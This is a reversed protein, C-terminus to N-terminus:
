TKVMRRLIDDEESTWPGKCVFSENKLELWRNFCQIESREKMCKSVKNWRQEGFRDVLKM